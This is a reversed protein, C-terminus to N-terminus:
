LPMWDPIHRSNWRYLTILWNDDPGIRLCLMEHLKILDAVSGSFERVDVAALQALARNRVEDTM